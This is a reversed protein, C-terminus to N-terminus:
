VSEMNQLKYLGRFTQFYVVICYLYVYCLLLKTTENGPWEWQDDLLRPVLSYCGVMNTLM